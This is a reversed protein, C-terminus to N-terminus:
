KRAQAVHMRQEYAMGDANAWSQWANVVDSELAAMHAVDVKSLASALPTSSIYQWLFARPAPLQLEKAFTRVAVEHFGAERFLREIEAADHLSFVVGVFRAADTGVHRALAAAPVDFFANPTPTSVFVRGGPALVRRMERIAGVKDAIFQLGLQCFVVTFANDPFPMSEAAAEYWRIQAGPSPVARAVSLMGPNSDVAAVTGGPGLRAAALRAVIGTGCAVDLVREDAALAAATVLDEAFPAAILPVFEREYHAASSGSHAHRFDVNM